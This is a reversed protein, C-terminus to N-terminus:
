MECPPLPSGCLCDNGVFASALFKSAPHQGCLHNYSVNLKELGAIGKPVRGTILNHSLNLDELTKVIRLRGLNFQLKNKAAWFGVLYDTRNLLSM